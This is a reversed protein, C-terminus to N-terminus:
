QTLGGGLRSSSAGAEAMSATDGVLSLIPWGHCFAVNAKRDRAVASFLVLYGDSPHFQFSKIQLAGGASLDVPEGVILDGADDRLMCGGSIISSLESGVREALDSPVEIAAVLSALDNLSQVIHATNFHLVISGVKVM